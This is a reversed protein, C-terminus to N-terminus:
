FSISIGGMFNIGAQPFYGNMNYEQGGYIYRYVWAHTEYMENFINNISFTLNMKKFLKSKVGYIFRLDSVFYPDVSREMNSTNDIFQRGVYRSNLMIDLTKFFHFQFSNKAIVSPSFSIDTTGLDKSEQGWSDWNDVYETFKIVKNQSLTFNMNWDFHESFRWGAVVEIGRRYSKDVNTLIAAGVNNVKGTEVLQDKYNMYYFNVRLLKDYSSLAYGLEYDTLNEAKPAYDADADQYNTRSPEKNAVAMSGYIQNNATINYVLGVKPNIFNFYYNSTLDHLDDHIGSM